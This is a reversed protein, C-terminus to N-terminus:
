QGGLLLAFTQDDCAVGGLALREDCPWEGALAAQLDDLDPLADPSGMVGPDVTAFLAASVGDMFSWISEQSAEIPLTPPAPQQRWLGVWVVTFMAALMAVATMWRLRVPQPRM